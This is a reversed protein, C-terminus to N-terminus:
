AEEELRAWNRASTILGAFWLVYTCSRLAVTSYKVSTSGATAILVLLRPSM